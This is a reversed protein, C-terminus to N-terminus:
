NKDILYLSFNNQNNKLFQYIYENSPIQMPRVIEYFSKDNQKHQFFKVFVTDILFNEIKKSNM